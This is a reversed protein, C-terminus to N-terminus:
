EWSLTGEMKARKLCFNLMVVGLLVFVLAAGLPVWLDSLIAGLKAGGVATQRGLTQVYTKPHVLSVVRLFPGIGAIGSLVNIPILEGTFLMSTTNYFWNIPDEGARTVAVWGSSFLNLGFRFIAGLMIVVWFAGSLYNIRVEFVFAAFLAYVLLAVFRWFFMADLNNALAVVWINFPRNHYIKYSWPFFMPNIIQAMDVLRNIILGSLMFSVMDPTKYFSFSQQLSPNVVLMGLLGWVAVEMATGAIRMAAQTRISFYARMANGFGTAVLKFHADIKRRLVLEQRMQL